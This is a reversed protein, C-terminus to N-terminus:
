YGCFVGRIRRWYQGSFLTVTLKPKWRIVDTSFTRPTPRCTSASVKSSANILCRERSIPIAMAASLLSEGVFHGIAICGYGLVSFLRLPIRLNLRRKFIVVMHVQANLDRCSASKPAVLLDSGRLGAVLHFNDM